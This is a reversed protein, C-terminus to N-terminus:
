IQAKLVRLLKFLKQYLSKSSCPKTFIRFIDLIKAPIPAEFNKVFMATKEFRM